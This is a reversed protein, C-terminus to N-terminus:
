WSRHIGDSSDGVDKTDTFTRLALEEETRLTLEHAGQRVVVDPFDTTFKPLVVPRSEMNKDFDGVKAAESPM